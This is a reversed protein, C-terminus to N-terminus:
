MKLPLPNWAMPQKPDSDNEHVMIFHFYSSDENGTLSLYFRDFESPIARIYQPSIAGYSIEGSANDTVFLWSKLVNVFGGSAFSYRQKDHSYPQNYAFPLDNGRVGRLEKTYIAQDGVYELEPIFDDYRDQNFAHRDITESYFREIEFWILGIIICPERVEVEFAYDTNFAQLRSTRSSAKTLQDTGTNDVESKGIWSTQSAIWTPVDDIVNVPEGKLIGKVYNKIKRGLINAKYRLRQWVQAETVDLVNVAGANVKISNDGVALARPRAGTFYDGYRLSFKRGFLSQILAYFNLDSFDGSTVFRNFLESCFVDYQYRVGDFTFLSIDYGMDYYLSQIYDIFMQATFVSDVKDSTFFEACALQYALVSEVNINSMSEDNIFSDKLLLDTEPWSLEPIQALHNTDISFRESRILELLRHHSVESISSSIYKNTMGDPALYVQYEDTSLPSTSEFVLSHTYIGQSDPSFYRRIFDTYETDYWIQFHPICSHLHINFYALLSGPSVLTHLMEVYRFFIAVEFEDAIDVGSQSISIVRTFLNNILEAFNYVARNDDPIDDGFIPMTLMKEWNRPYIAKMPVNIYEKNIKVPSKMDSRLTYTDLIHRTTLPVTSGAIGYKYYFTDVLGYKHTLAASYPQPFTNLNDHVVVSERNQANENQMPSSGKSLIAM